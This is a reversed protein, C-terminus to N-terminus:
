VLRWRWSQSLAAIISAIRNENFDVSNSWIPNAVWKWTVGNIEILVSDCADDCRQRLTSASAQHLRARLRTVSLSVTTNISCTCGTLCHVWTTLYSRWCPRTWRPPFCCREAEQLDSLSQKQKVDFVYRGTLTATKDTTSYHIKMDFHSCNGYPNM